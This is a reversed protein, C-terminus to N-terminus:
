NEKKAQINQIARIVYSLMKEQTEVDCWFIEDTNFYRDYIINRDRDWVMVLQSYTDSCRLTQETPYFCIQYEGWWHSEQQRNNAM